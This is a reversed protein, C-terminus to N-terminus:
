PTCTVVVSITGFDQHNPYDNYFAVTVTQSSPVSVTFTGTTVTGAATFPLSSSPSNGLSTVFYYTATGSTTATVNATFVINTPCTGTYSTPSAVTTAGTIVFPQDVKVLVWFVGDANAGLGFTTGNDTQLMWKGQYTKGSTSPAKLDVSIQISAGPAVSQNLTKSAPGGMADGSVFVLRFNSNWTGTGGNTLKWTKTFTQGPKVVTNDPYTVDAV